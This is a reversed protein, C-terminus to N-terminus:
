KRECRSDHFVEDTNGGETMPIKLCDTKRCVYYGLFDALMHSLLIESYKIGDLDGKQEM